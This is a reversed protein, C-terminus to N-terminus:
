KVFYGILTTGRKGSDATAANGGRRNGLVRCIYVGPFRSRRQRFKLGVGLAFLQAGLLIVLYINLLFKIM